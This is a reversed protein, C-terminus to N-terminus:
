PRLIQKNPSKKLYLYGTLVGMPVLLMCRQIKSLREIENEFLNNQFIAVLIVSIIFLVIEFWSLRADSIEDAKYRSSIVWFGLFLIMFPFAWIRFEDWAVAHLLLPFLSVTVLLSIVYRNIKKFERYVLYMMFLIPLGFKLTNKSLFLRDVFYVSQQRLYTGFSETYASSIMLAVKKSIFGTGELYHFILQDNEKGWIEQYVSILVTAALPFFLFIGVKKFLDKSFVISKGPMEYILLAFLCVPVMLFFSIEHIVVSFVALLSALFIKKNRILYVALITLLFIVHDLYGILHASLVVYQSLFFVLYFLVKRISYNEFTTRLSITLIAAYLLLLIVASLIQINLVNKEFFFGFIEGALGRKIFGFRYDMLWHAESWQNPLRVTKVFSFALAYVYLFTVLFKRNM